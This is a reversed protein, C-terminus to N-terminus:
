TGPALRAAKFTGDRGSRFAPAAGLRLFARFSSERGGLVTGTAGEVPHGDPDVVRGQLTAARVLTVDQAEMEGASLTARATWPVFRADDASLRCPGPVLGRVEYRGDTASRGTFTASACRAVVRIGSLPAATSADVVRGRVGATPALVLTAKAGADPV